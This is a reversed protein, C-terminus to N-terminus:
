EHLNLRYMGFRVIKYEVVGRACIWFHGGLSTPVLEHSQREQPEANTHASHSRASASAWHDARFSCLPEQLLAAGWPISSAGPCGPPIWFLRSFRGRPFSRFPALRVSCSSLSSPHLYLLEPRAGLPLLETASEWGTFASLLHYCIVHRNRRSTSEKPSGIQHDKSARQTVM